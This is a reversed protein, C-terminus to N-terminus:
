GEVGDGSEREQLTRMLNVYWISEIDKDSILRDLDEKKEIIAWWSSDGWVVKNLDPVWIAPNTRNSLFLAKSKSGRFIMVERNLDGLYVGFYTKEDGVPRIRVPSGVRETQRIDDRFGQRLITSIEIPFKMEHSLEIEGHTEDFSRKAEAMKSLLEGFGEIGEQNEESM